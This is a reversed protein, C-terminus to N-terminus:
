RPGVVIFYFDADAASGSGNVIRIPASIHSPSNVMAFRAVSGNSEATATVIPWQGVPFAPSFTISYVGTASRSATFGSGFQVAGAASVKGRIIRLNEVSSPAFYQGSPGLRVDGRVELKSAPTSTGVGVNGASSVRLREGGSWLVIDGSPRANAITMVPSGPTGYGMWGTESTSNWFGVYGAQQSAAAKDELIVVPGTAKIHLPYAPTTTGIGVNGQLYSLDTGTMQWPGLAYPAGTVPQRPGLVTTSVCTSDTCLEVQLWRAEGNFAAAGFANSGNLAVSFVGGAIPTNPIVETAGIMTGGTPPEGSGAADWLSLRLSVTGEVPVGGQQLQGQYTFSRALPAAPAPSPRVLLLATLLLIISSRKLM